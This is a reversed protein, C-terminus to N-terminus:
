ELLLHSELIIPRPLKAHAVRPPTAIRLQGNNNGDNPREEERKREKPGPPWSWRQGYFASFVASFDTKDYFFSFKGLKKQCIDELQALINPCVNNRVRFNGRLPDFAFSPFSFSFLFFFWRPHRVCLRRPWFSPPFSSEMWLEAQWSVYESVPPYYPNYIRGAM